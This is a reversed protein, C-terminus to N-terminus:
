EKEYRYTYGTLAYPKKVRGLCRQRIAEHSMNEAKAADRTSRYLEVVNGERDIKEVCKNRSRGGTKKGLERRDILRINKIRNDYIDGNAHHYVMGEPAPPLWTRVIVSMLAWIKDKGEVRLHVHLRNKCRKHCKSGLLYPHLPSAGGDKLVRRVEGGKSCQYKGSTEPIDRWWGPPDSRYSM